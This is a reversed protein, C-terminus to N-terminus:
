TNKQIIHKFLKDFTKMQLEFDIIEPTIHSRCKLGEYYCFTMIAIQLRDKKTKGYRPDLHNVFLKFGIELNKLIYKKIKPMKAIQARLDLNHRIHPIRESEDIKDLCRLFDAPSLNNQTIEELGRIYKDIMNKLLGLLIDEKNKFHHYVAGKTLGAKKAIEDISTQQYGKKHFLDEAAEILQGRRKEPPLKPSQKIKKKM